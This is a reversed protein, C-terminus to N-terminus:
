KVYIIDEDPDDDEWDRDDRSSMSEVEEAAAEEEEDEYVATKKEEKIKDLIAIVRSGRELSEDEIFRIEPTIRLKMRRGLESRVYKAKSKLGAVAVDKGREDGFVSVYVKVVQLDASVEVDSITTLSSLYRDAGLAAEPLVAFQLVKDTLLMDSLERRIQKAVMKVRRPNAMCKITAGTSPNTRLHIYATPKPTPFSCSKLHVITIPVLHHLLVHSM